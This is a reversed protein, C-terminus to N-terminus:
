TDAKPSKNEISVKDRMFVIERLFILLWLFFSVKGNTLASIEGEGERHTDKVPLRVIRILLGLFWSWAFTPKEWKSPGELLVGSAKQTNRMQPQSLQDFFMMMMMMMMVMVMVMMMM